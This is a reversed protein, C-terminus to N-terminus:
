QNLAMIRAGGTLGIEIIRRPRPPWGFFDPRVITHSRSHTSLVTQPKAGNHRPCDATSRETTPTWFRRAVPRVRFRRELPDVGIITANDAM